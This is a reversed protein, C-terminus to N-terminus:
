SSTCIVNSLPVNRMFLCGPLRVFCAGRGVDKISNACTCWHGAWRQKAVGSSQWAASHREVSMCATTQLGKPSPKQQMWIPDFPERSAEQGRAPRKSRDPLGKPASKSPELVSFFYEQVIGPRELLFELLPKLWRSPWFAGLVSGLLNWFRTGSAVQASFHLIVFSQPRRM